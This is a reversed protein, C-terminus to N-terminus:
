PEVVVFGVFEHALRHLIGVTPFFHVVLSLAFGFDDLRKADGGFHLDKGPFAFAIARQSRVFLLATGFVGVLVTPLTLGLMWLLPIASVYFCFFREPLSAERRTRVPEHPIALAGPFAAATSSVTM